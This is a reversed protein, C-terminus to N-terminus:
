KWPGPAVWEDKFDGTKVMAEIPGILFKEIEEAADKLKEPADNISGTACVFKEAVSPKWSYDLM